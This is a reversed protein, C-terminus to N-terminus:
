KYQFGSSDHKGDVCLAPPFQRCHSGHLANRMALSTCIIGPIDM